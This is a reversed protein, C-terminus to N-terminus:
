ITGTSFVERGGVFTALVEVKLIERPPITMIDNSLVVLDAHKGM